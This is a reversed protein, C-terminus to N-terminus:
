HLCYAQIQNILCNLGHFGQLFSGFCIFLAIRVRITEPNTLEASVRDVGFRAVACVLVLSPVLASADTVVPLKSVAMPKLARLWVVSPLLLVPTPPLERTFLVLPLSFVAIPAVESL